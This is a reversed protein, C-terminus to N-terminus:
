GPLPDIPVPGDPEPPLPVHFRFVTGGSGGPRFGIAGGMREVIQKSIFLGLGTGGYQRTTSADGQAFPEFLSARASEPIGIGTDEIECILGPAGDAGDRGYRMRLEVKGAETFKCANGLLNLLVQKLRAADGRLLPPLGPDAELSLAVGKRGAEVEFPRLAQHGLRVPSFPAPVLELRGEGIRSIDLIGDVLALLDEASTRIDRLTSLRERGAGAKILLGSLGLIAELPARIAGSMRALFRGKAEDAARASDRARALARETARNARFFYVILLVQVIQLTTMEILRLRPIDSARAPAILGRAPAFAETLLLLISSLAIGYAISKREKWDFLLLPSWGALLFFMHQGTETGMSLTYVLVDLNALTLFFLRAFATHGARNIRHVSAYGLLIPIELWGMLRSGAYLYILVFPLSLAAVSLSIQNSLIIRKALRPDLSPDAGSRFAASVPRALAKMM